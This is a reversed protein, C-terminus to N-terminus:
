RVLLTVALAVGFGALLWPGFPLTRHGAVLAVVGAIGGLVFSAMLGAAPLWWAFPSVALALAVALKVDGMGMGGTLALVLMLGGVGLAVVPGLWDGLIASVVGAAAGVVMLPVTLANPLRRDRVDIRTLTPACAACAICAVVGAIPWTGDIAALVVVGAGLLVALVVEAPRAGRRARVVGDMGLRYRARAIHGREGDM